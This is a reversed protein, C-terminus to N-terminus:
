SGLFEREGVGEANWSHIGVAGLMWLQQIIGGAIFLDLYKPHAIREQARSSESFLGFDKM